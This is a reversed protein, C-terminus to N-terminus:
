KLSYGQAKAIMHEHILEASFRSVADPCLFISQTNNQAKYTPGGAKNPQVFIGEGSASWNTSGEAGVLGDAAFGKTHSIQHTASEGIAVHTRFAHPNKAAESELLKKEHVGGAQSRDLTILCTITPDHAIGMVLDALEQDDLAYMGLYFSVSIRSLVYKLISHVDDRGVYFLHFDSSASPSYVGEKTFQALEQLSFHQLSKSPTM